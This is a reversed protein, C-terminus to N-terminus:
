LPPVTGSKCRTGEGSARKTAGFRARARARLSAAHLAVLDGVALELRQESPEVPDGVLERPHVRAVLTAFLQRHDRM